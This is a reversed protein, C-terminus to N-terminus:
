QDSLYLWALTFVRLKCAFVFMQKCNGTSARLLSRGGSPSLKVPFAKTRAETDHETFCSSSSGRCSVIRFIWAAFSSIVSSYILNYALARSAESLNKGEMLSSVMTDSQDLNGKWARSKPHPFTELAAMKAVGTGSVAKRINFRSSGPPNRTRIPIPLCYTCSRIVLKLLRLLMYILCDMMIMLIAM